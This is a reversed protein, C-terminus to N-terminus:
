AAVCGLAWVDVSLDYNEFGLLLEPPRYERSFIYSVSNISDENPIIKAAGFDCLYISSKKIVFNHPKIDRHCIQMSHIYNLARIM